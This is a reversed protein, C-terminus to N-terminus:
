KQKWWAKKKDSFRYGPLEINSWYARPTEWQSPSEQLKPESSFLSKKEDAGHKEKIELGIQLKARNIRQWITERTKENIQYFVSSFKELNVISSWDKISELQKSYQNFINKNVIFYLDGPANHTKALFTMKDHNELIKSFDELAKNPKAYLKDNEWNLLIIEKFGTIASDSYGVPIQIMGAWRNNEM